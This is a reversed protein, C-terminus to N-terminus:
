NKKEMHFSRALGIRQPNCDRRRCSGFLQNAKLKTVVVFVTVDVTIIAQSADNSVRGTNAVLAIGLRAIVQTVDHLFGM